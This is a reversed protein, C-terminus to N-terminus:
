GGFGHLSLEDQLRLGFEPFARGPVPAGTEQVPHIDVGPQQMEELGPGSAVASNRDTLRETTNGGTPAPVQDETHAASKRTKIKRAAGQGVQRAGFRVQAPVAEVVALAVRGPTEQGPGHVIGFHFGRARKIGQSRVAGPLRQPLAQADRVAQGPTGVVAGEVVDIGRGTLDLGIIVIELPSIALGRVTMVM